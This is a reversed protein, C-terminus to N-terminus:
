KKIISNKDESFTFAARIVKKSTSNTSYGVSIKYFLEPYDAIFAEYVNDFEEKSIPSPFDATKMLNTAANLM